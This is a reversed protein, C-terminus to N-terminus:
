LSLSVVASGKINSSVNDLQLLVVSEGGSGEHARKRGRRRLDITHLQRQEDGYADVDEKV